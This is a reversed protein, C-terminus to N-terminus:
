VGEDGNAPPAVPQGDRAAAVPVAPGAALELENDRRSPALKDRWARIRGPVQWLSLLGQPLAVVMVLVLVGVIITSWEAWKSFVENFITLLGAGIIPGLTAYGVGGLVAFVQVYITKPFLNFATPIIFTQYHAYFAGMLGAIASGVVFSALRYRFVNVGMSQALRPNLGIANWARGAWSVYFANIVLMVIVFLFLGLYFFDVKSDFTVRGLAGFNLAGPHPINSIGNYGGLSKINGVAVVFLMAIVTTMIIFTFGANRIIVFGAILAILATVITALPLALWVSLHANVVLVASAYAGIGWFAAVALSILGTRLMMVFTMALTANIMLVIFLDIYYPSQVWAPILALFVALLIFAILRKHDLVYTKV